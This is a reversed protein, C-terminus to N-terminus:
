LTYDSFDYVRWTCHGCGAPPGATFTSPYGGNVDIVMHWGADAAGHSPLGVDVSVFTSNIVQLGGPLSGFIRQAEASLDHGPAPRLVATSDGANAEGETWSHVRVSAATIFVHIAQQVQAAPSGSSAAPASSSGVGPLSCGALLLGLVLAALRRPM